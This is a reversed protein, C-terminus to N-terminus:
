EYRLADIPNLRSAQIAPYVGAVVGFILSFVFGIACASMSLIPSYESKVLALQLVQIAIIGFGVGMAGGIASLCTAEALIQIFIDSDTAGIAKCLGIERMRESVSALMLNTIGVGGILLTVLGIAIGTSDFGAKTKNFLAIDDVRTEIRFDKLGRHTHILVNSVEQVTQDISAINEVQIDFWTLKRSSRFRDEMTSIPIYTFKNKWDLINFDGNMQVYNKLLGVVTFPDGNISITKGLPDSNPPFIAKVVNSGLVVVSKHQKIDKDTILRGRIVEMRSTIFTGPTVGQIRGQFPKANAIVTGDLGIEPSVAEIHHCLKRIAQADEFTRGNSLSKLHSQQKPLYDDEITIKEIGGSEYISREWKVFLGSIFGVIVVLSAVGLFVSLLSLLSRLKHTWIQRLGHWISIFLNM